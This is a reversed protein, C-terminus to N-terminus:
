IAGKVVPITILINVNNGQDIYLVRNRTIELNLRAELKWFSQQPSCTMTMNAKSISMFIIKQNRVEKNFCTTTMNAQSISMFLGQNRRQQIMFQTAVQANSWHEM